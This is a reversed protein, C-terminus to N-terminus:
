QDDQWEGEKGRGSGAEGMRKRRHCEILGCDTAVVAASALATGASLALAIVLQAKL